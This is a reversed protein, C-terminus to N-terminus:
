LGARTGGGVGPRLTPRDDGARESALEGAIPAARYVPVSGALEAGGSTRNAAVLDGGHARLIRRAIALGLGAGGTVRSRSPDARYLPEFLHPLDRPAIGPGTDAVSFTARDGRCRWRVEVTGGEPTYYLANDLLNEVARGLLHADGELLCGQSPGDLQLTVGKGEAERRRGEVARRLLTGLELPERQLTQELYEIRAYAFLDSILRELVDAKERCVRVYQATKEPTTVLGQELGELHGRLSFLPTRLDHAIAGVFFGREEELEAQREISERLGDRMAEFAASVEAVERVRTSPLQVDLDGRAVRRAARSLAELPRVVYRGMQWAVLLLTLLVALLAAVPGLQGQRAPLHLLPQLMQQDVLDALHYFLVALISFFGIGVLMWRRIGLTKM